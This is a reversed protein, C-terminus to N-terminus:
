LISRLNYKFEEVKKGYTDAVRYTRIHLCPSYQFSVTRISAKIFEGTFAEKMSGKFVDSNDLISIFLKHAPEGFTLVITPKFNTIEKALYSKCNNFCPQLLSLVRTQSISTERKVPCKVVNTAYLEVEQFSHEGLVDKLWRALQGNGQDLMLVCEVRDSDRYIYPDQGILMVKKSSTANNHYPRPLKLKIYPLNKCRDCQEPYGFKYTDM